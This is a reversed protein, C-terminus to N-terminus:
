MWSEIQLGGIREYHRRNGTVLLRGYTLTTAAILLDADPVLRAERKLQSKIAGFRRAVALDSEVVRMSLLLAEVAHRNELPRSSAAAGYLLEAASMFCMAVEDDREARRDIIRQNGRLLEVCTDTGLIIM